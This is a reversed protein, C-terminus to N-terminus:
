ALETNDVTRMNQQKEQNLSSQFNYAAFNKAGRTIHPYVGALLAVQCMLNFYFFTFLLDLSPFAPKSIIVLYSHLSAISISDIFLFYVAPAYHVSHFFFNKHQYHARYSSYILIHM